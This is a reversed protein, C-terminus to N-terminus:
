KRNLDFKEESYDLIIKQCATCHYAVCASGQWFSLKSLLVSEEHFITRAFLRRKEGKIWCIEHPSHILGREMEGQCYPCKM